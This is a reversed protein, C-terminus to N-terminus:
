INPKLDIIKQRFEILKTQFEKASGTLEDTTDVFGYWMTEIEEYAGDLDLHWDPSIFGLWKRTIEMDRECQKNTYFIKM